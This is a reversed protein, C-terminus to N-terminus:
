NHVWFVEKHLNLSSYPTSLFQISDTLRSYGYTQIPTASREVELGRTQSGM